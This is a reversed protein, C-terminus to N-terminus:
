CCNWCCRAPRCQVKVGVKLDRHVVMNRHCYEVGSIIQLPHVPWFMVGMLLSAALNCALRLNACLEVDHHPLWAAVAATASFVAAAAPVAVAVAADAAAAAADAAAAAAAAAASSAAWRSSSTARRTRWCGGRRWLTTLCSARRCRLVAHAAACRTELHATAGM